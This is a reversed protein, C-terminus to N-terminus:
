LDEIEVRSFFRGDWEVITRIPNRYIDEYDLHITFGQEFAMRWAAGQAVPWDPRGALPVTGPGYNWSLDGFVAGTRFNLAPGLGDNRMNLRIQVLDAAGNWPPAAPGSWHIHEPIIAPRVSAVRSREAERLAGGTQRLALVALLAVLATAGSGVAVAIEVWLSDQV